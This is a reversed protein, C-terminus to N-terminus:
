QVTPTNLYPKYEMDERLIHSTLWDALYRAIGKPSIHGGETMATRLQRVQAILECHMREHETWKPFGIRKLLAEEFAFHLATSAIIDDLIRGLEETMGMKIVENFHNVLEFLKKHQADIDAHDFEFREHWALFAM